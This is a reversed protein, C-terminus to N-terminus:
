RNEYKKILKSNFKIVTEKIISWVEESPEYPFFKIIENGSGYFIGLYVPLGTARYYIEMQFKWKDPIGYIPNMPRKTEVIKDPFLFDMKGSIIVGEEIKIEIREQTKVETKEDTLIKFLMDEMASGRFMNAQGLKDIEKQKFFNGATTYGKYISWIESAYYKGIERKKERPKNYYQNIIEKITM